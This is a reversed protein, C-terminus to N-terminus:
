RTILDSIFGQRSVLRSSLMSRYRAEWGDSTGVCSSCTGQNDVADVDIRRLSKVIVIVLLMEEMSVNGSAFIHWSLCKM